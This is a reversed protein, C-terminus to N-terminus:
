AILPIGLTGNVLDRIAGLIENIAAEVALLTLSTMAVLVAVTAHVQMRMLAKAGELTFDDINEAIALIQTAIKKLEPIAFTRIDNWVNGALGEGASTMRGVLLDFNM